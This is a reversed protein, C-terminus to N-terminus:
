TNYKQAWDPNLRAQVEWADLLALATMNEIVPIVRPVICPDHRGHTEIDKDRMALDVTRQPRAISSTPKVGIRLRVPQGTSIGGSIGGAHNTLFGGEGMQDNAQSGRLRTLAFGEGIEVAKVAGLTMVARTLRADLKEFVPDGLGPPLGTIELQIIGGVSDSDNKAALIAQIMKEAAAPDACRVSNKEIQDPDFTQARIGAIEVAHATIRVGRDKLLMRAVAGCMVRAATERGSSRGGGRYDRIGYKAYYTFDAHGPRFLDKIGEYKASDQDRNFIVMAIPAGTTKGDFVGSLVEVRDKESRPTTVESQGPRRRNMQQQIEELDFPIGPKIGDMVAGIAPGHSEGFTTVRIIDGYTNAACSRVALELTLLDRVQQALLRPDDATSDLVLDAYPKIVENRYTLEAEFKDRGDPGQLWPPVGDQTARQWAVEHNTTLYVIVANYRLALRNAPSLLISGGTIVLQWDLLRTDQAVRSELERFYDRGHDAYIERYTKRTGTKQEYLDEILLDTEVAPLGLLDSLAAGLTSKGSGKPGAIVIKM